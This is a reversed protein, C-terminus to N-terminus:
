AGSDAPDDSPYLAVLAISIARRARGEWAPRNIWQDQITLAPKARNEHVLSNRLRRLWRLDAKAAASAGEGKPGLQMDVIAAALIIAASWAGACFVAQLDIMLACAQESLFPAGSASREAELDRFWASREDWDQQSPLDLQEM